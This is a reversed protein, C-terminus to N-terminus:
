LVALCSCFVHIVAGATALVFQLVGVVIRGIGPTTPTADASRTRQPDNIAGRSLIESVARLM